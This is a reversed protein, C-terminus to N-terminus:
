DCVVLLYNDFIVAVHIHQQFHPIRWDHVFIDGSITLDINLFRELEAIICAHSFIISVCHSQILNLCLPFPFSSFGSQADLILLFLLSNSMIIIKNTATNDRSELM